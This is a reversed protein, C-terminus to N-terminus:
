VREVPGTPVVGPGGHRCDLCPPILGFVGERTFTDGTWWLGSKVLHFTGQSLHGGEVDRLM